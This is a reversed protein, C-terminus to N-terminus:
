SKKYMYPSEPIGASECFERVQKSLAQPSIGLEEARDTISMGECIALGLGYWVAWAAVHPSTSPSIFCAVSNIIRFYHLAAERYENVADSEDIEDTETQTIM